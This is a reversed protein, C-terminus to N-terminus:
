GPLAAMEERLMEVMRAAAPSLRRGSLRVLGIPR